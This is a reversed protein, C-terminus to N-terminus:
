LEVCAGSNLRSKEALLAIEHSMVSQGVTTISVSDRGNLYLYVEHMFKYDGGGHPGGEYKYKSSDIQETEGGFRRLELTNGYEDFLGTLEGETGQIHIKRYVNQSFASLTHTAIAGSEFQMIVSQHDCLKNDCSYVCRDYQSHPLYKLINEMTPEKQMYYYNCWPHYPYIKIAEFVCEKKHPCDTCYEAAGEPKNEKRFFSLEGRSNVSVCKENMFWCILDLDHCCKALLVPSEGNAWPGRVYAHAYHWYGINENTQINIIRGLRGALLVEKIARYFDTYRLVHCVFVKRGLRRSEELIGRCEELKNSIPKELIIDYGARMMKVAHEYHQSDQTAICVIDLPIKDRIFDDPDYYVRAGDVPQVKINEPNKEIIAVVDYEDPHNLAYQTYGRGRNGYGLVAYRLKKM